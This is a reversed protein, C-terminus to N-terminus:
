KNELRLGLIISIFSNMVAVVLFIQGRITNQFCIAFKPVFLFIILITLFVVTNVIINVWRVTTLEAKGEKAENQADTIDNSISMLQETFETGKEYFSNILCALIRAYKNNMRKSFDELANKVDIGSNISRLLREYEKKIPNKLKPIINQIAIVLSKTTTYETILFKISIGLQEEIKNKKSKSIVNLYLLPLEYAILVMIPLLIINKTILVFVIGIIMIFITIKTITRPVIKDFVIAYKNSIKEEFSSIYKSDDFLRDLFSIKIKEGKIYKDIITKKREKITMMISLIVLLLGTICLFVVFYNM